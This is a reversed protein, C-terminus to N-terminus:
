GLDNGSQKHTAFYEAHFIKLSETHLNERRKTEEFFPRTIINICFYAVVLLISLIAIGAGFWRLGVLVAPINPVPHTNVWSIFVDWTAFLWDILANLKDTM